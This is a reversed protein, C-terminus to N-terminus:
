LLPHIISYLRAEKLGGLERSAINGARDIVLTYPLVGARNGVLRVLELTQLGGLLVPYNIQFKRAFDAVKDPQDIAIGVFQLGQAGYREQM